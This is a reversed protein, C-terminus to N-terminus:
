FILSALLTHKKIRVYFLQAGKKTVTGNEQVAESSKEDSTSVTGNVCTSSDAIEETKKNSSEFKQPSETKNETSDAEGNKNSTSESM